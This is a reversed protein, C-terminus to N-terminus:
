VGAGQRRRKGRIKLVRLLNVMFLVVLITTVAGIAAFPVLIAFLTFAFAAKDFALNGKLFETSLGVQMASLVITTYTFFTILLNFNDRLYAGYTKSNTLYGRPNRSALRYVWNLRGLRLEGYYFRPNVLVRSELPTQFSEPFNSNTQMVIEEAFALWGEWTVDAPILSNNTALGFDIEREILAVYSLMFGLATRYLHRYPCIHQRWFHPCLLYRPLPKIFIRDTSWVLHLDMQETAIIERKKLRQYHLARPSTPFGVLWFWDHISNLREINLDCELFSRLDASVLRVTHRNRYTAPLLPTAPELGANLRDEMPPLQRRFPPELAPMKQLLASAGTNNM